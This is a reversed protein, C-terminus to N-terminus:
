DLVASVSGGFRERPLKGEDFHFQIQERAWAKTGHGNM